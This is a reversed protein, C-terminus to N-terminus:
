DRQIKGDVESIASKMEVLQPGCHSLNFPIDESGVDDGTEGDDGIDGDECIDGDEGMEDDSIEGDESAGEQFRLEAFLAAIEEASDGKPVDAANRHAHGEAYVFPRDGFNVRM